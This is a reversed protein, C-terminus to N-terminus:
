RAQIGSGPGVPQVAQPRINELQRKEAVTLRDYSISTTSPACVNRKLRGGLKRWDGISLLGTLSAHLKDADLVDNFRMTWGLVKHNLKCGDMLHVPYEDWGHHSVSPQEPQSRWNLLPM